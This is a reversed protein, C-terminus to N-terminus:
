KVLMDLVKKCLHGYRMYLDTKTSVLGRGVDIQKQPSNSEVSKGNLTWELQAAPNSPKSTCTLNLIDGAKLSKRPDSGSIVPTSDPLESFIFASCLLLCSKLRSTRPGFGPWEAEFFVVEKGRLRFAGGSRQISCLPAPDLLFFPVVLCFALDSFLSWLYNWVM